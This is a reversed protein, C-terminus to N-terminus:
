AGRQIQRERRQLHIVQPGMSVNFFNWDRDQRQGRLFSSGLVPREKNRADWRFCNLIAIPCKEHGYKITVPSFKRITRFARRSEATGLCNSQM